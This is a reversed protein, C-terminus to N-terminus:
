RRLSAAVASDNSALLTILNTMNIPFIADSSQTSQTPQTAAQTSQTPQTQAIASESHQEYIVFYPMEKRGVVDTRMIARKDLNQKVDADSLSMINGNDNIISYYHGSEVTSGCHVVVSKLKYVMNTGDEIRLTIIDDLEINRFEKTKKIIQAQRDLVECSYILFNVVLVKPPVRIYKTAELNCHCTNCAKPTEEKEFYRNILSQSNHTEAIGIEVIDISLSTLEQLSIEEFDECGVANCREIIAQVGYFIDKVFVNQSLMLQDFIYNLLEHADGEVYMAFKKEPLALRFNLPVVTRSSKLHSHSLM